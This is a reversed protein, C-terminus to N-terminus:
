CSAARDAQAEVWRWHADPYLGARMTVPYRRNQGAKVVSKGTRKDVTDSASDDVCAEVVISTPSVSVVRRLAVQPAGKRVFGQERMLDLDRELASMYPGGAYPYLPRKAPDADWDYVGSQAAKLYIANLRLYAAWAQDVAAQDAATLSPQTAPRAAAKSPQPPTEVARPSCASALPLLLILAVTKRGSYFISSM